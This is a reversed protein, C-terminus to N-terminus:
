QAVDIWVYSRDYGTVVMESKFILRNYKIEIGSATFSFMYDYSSVNTTNFSSLDLLTLAECLRFMSSMDTVKGTDFSSLNVSTLAKCSNFMSAMDTVNSTDVGTLDCALLCPQAVELCNVKRLKGLRSLVIKLHSVDLGPRSAFGLIGDVVVYAIQGIDNVEDRRHSQEYRNEGGNAIHSAMQFHAGHLTGTLTRQFRQERNKDKSNEYNFKLM